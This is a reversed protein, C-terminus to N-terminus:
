RYSWGVFIQAVGFGAFLSPLIWILSIDPLEIAGQLFGYTFTGIGVIGASILASETVIRSQVEDMQRVFRVITILIFVACLVPLLSMGIRTAMSLSMADDILNIGIVTVTYGVFGLIMRWFYAKVAQRQTASGCEPKFEM